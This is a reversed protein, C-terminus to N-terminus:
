SDIERIIERGYGSKFYKEVRRAEKRTGVIEVHILKLPLMLKTTSSRGNFHETLRRELNDTLGKYYTGLKLSKIIYVFYMNRIGLVQAGAQRCAPRGNRWSPMHYNYGLSVFLGPEQGIGLSKPFGVTEGLIPLVTPRTELTSYPKYKTL